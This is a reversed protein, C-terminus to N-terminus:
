FPTINIPMGSNSGSGFGAGGGPSFGAVLSQLGSTILNDLPKFAQSLAMESMRMAMSKLVDEFGKGSKIANKMTSSFLSGFKETSASLDKMAQKFHSNDLEMRYTKM